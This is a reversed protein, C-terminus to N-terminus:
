PIAVAKKLYKMFLFGDSSSLCFYIDSSLDKESRNLVRVELEGHTLTSSNILSSTLMRIKHCRNSLIRSRRYDQDLKFTM